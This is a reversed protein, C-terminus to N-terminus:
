PHAVQKQTIIIMTELLPLINYFCQCVNRKMLSSLYSIMYKIYRNEYLRADLEQNIHNELSRMADGRDFSHEELGPIMDQQDIQPEEDNCGM